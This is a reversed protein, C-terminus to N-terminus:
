EPLLNALNDLSRLLAGFQPGSALADLKASDVYERAADAINVLARWEDGNPDHVRKLLDIAYSAPHERRACEACLSRTFPPAMAGCKQCGLSRSLDITFKM